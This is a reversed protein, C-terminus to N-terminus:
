YQICGPFGAPPVSPKMQLPKHQKNDNHLPIASSLHFDAAQLAVDGPLRIRGIGYEMATGCYRDDRLSFILLSL